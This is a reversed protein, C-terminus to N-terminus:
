CYIDSRSSGRPPDRRRWCSRLWTRARCQAPSSWQGSSAVVGDPPRSSYAISGAGEAKGPRLLSSSDVQARSMLTMPRPNQRTRSRSYLQGPPQHLSDSRLHSQPSPSRTLRRPKACVAGSASRVASTHPRQTVRPFSAHVFEEGAYNDVPETQREPRCPALFKGPAGRTKQEMPRAVELCATLQPSVSAASLFAKGTSSGTGTVSRPSEMHRHIACRFSQPHENM